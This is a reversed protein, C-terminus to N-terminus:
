QEILSEKFELPRGLDVVDRYIINTSGNVSIQVKDAVQNAILSNVISYITLEPNIGGYEELFAGDFNVYCIHDRVSVGLIKTNGFGNGQSDNVGSGKLIEEVIVKEKSKNSNYRVQRREKVLARGETNVFYFVFEQSQYNHLSKGINQVFSDMNMYGVNQNEADKLAEAEVFFGVYSVGDIQCLSRVLFYRFVLEESSKMDRYASNFNLDLKEDELNWDLVSVGKQFLSNLDEKKPLKKYDKLMQDVQDSPTKGALEYEMKEISNKDASLCWIYTGKTDETDKIKKTKACASAGLVLLILCLFILLLRAKIDLNRKNIGM